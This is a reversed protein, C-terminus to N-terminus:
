DPRELSELARPPGPSGGEFRLDNMRIAGDAMYCNSTPCHAVGAGAEGLASVEDDFWVGHAIAAREDLIGARHMWHVSQRALQTTSSLSAGGSYGSQPSPNEGPLPHHRKGPLTHDSSSPGNCGM